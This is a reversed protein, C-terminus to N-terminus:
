ELRKATMFLGASVKYEAKLTNSIIIRKFHREYIHLGSRGMGRQKTRGRGAFQGFAVLSSGDNGFDV